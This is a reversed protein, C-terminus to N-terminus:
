CGDAAGRVEWMAEWFGGDLALDVGEGTVALDEELGEGLVDGFVFIAAGTFGDAGFALGLLLDGERAIAAFDGLDLVLLTFFFFDAILDSSVASAARARASTSSFTSSKAGGSGFGM